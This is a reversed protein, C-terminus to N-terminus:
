SRYGGKTPTEGHEFRAQRAKLFAKRLTESHSAKFSEDMVFVMGDINIFSCIDLKYLEDPYKYLNLPLNPASSYDSWIGTNDEHIKYNGFFADTLEIGKYWKLFPFVPVEIRDESWFPIQGLIILGKSIPTACFDICCAIKEEDKKLASLHGKVEGYCDSDPFYFDPLYRIISGDCVEAKYGEPEYEYKIRMADFFVAWRAELRSRFRYGNYETEIAKIEPM